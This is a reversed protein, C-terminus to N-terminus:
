FLGMNSVMSNGALHQGLQAQAILAGFAGGAGIILLIDGAKEVAHRLLSNVDEKKWRRKGALALLIGIGLAAEPTGIAQVMHVPFSSSGDATTFSRIGILLIPVAVPLVSLLLSPL